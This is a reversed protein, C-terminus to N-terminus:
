LQIRSGSSLSQSQLLLLLLQSIIIISLSEGVAAAPVSQL